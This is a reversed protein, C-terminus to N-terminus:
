TLFEKVTEIDQTQQSGTNAVLKKTLKAVKSRGSLVRQDLISIVGKDTEQRLVRGVAQQFVEMSKSEYWQPFGRQKWWAVQNQCLDNFQILPFKVLIVQSLTEGKFDVGQFFSKTAFLVSHENERFMNTIYTKDVNDTQFYVEYPLPNQMLRERVAQLESKATFLVLTRGNSAHILKIMEDFSFQAGKLDPIVADIGPTTYFLQNNELNFVTDLVLEHANKPFNLSEKIYRFDMSSLDRLTASMLIATRDAWIYYAKHSIDLPVADFRVSDEGRGTRFMHTLTCKPVGNDDVTGSESELSLNITTMLQKLQNASTLAKTVNRKGKGKSTNLKDLVKVLQEEINGIVETVARPAGSLTEFDLLAEQLSADSTDPIYTLKLIRDQDISGSLVHFRKYAQIWNSVQESLADWDKQVYESTCKERIAVDLGTSVRKIHGEIEWETCSVTWGSILSSELEHAEDVAVLNIPGFYGEPEFIRREADVRLIANNTVIINSRKARQLARAGYCASVECKIEACDNADGSIRDWTTNDIRMHLLGEIESREGTVIKSSVMDIFSMTERVDAHYRVAARARNMCLYNDRGKLSAYSFGVSSLRELDGMYQDQLSKTATSIVARYEGDAKIIKDIIPILLALSKGTGTPAEVILNGESEITQLIADGMHEQQDRTTYGLKTLTPEAIKKWM